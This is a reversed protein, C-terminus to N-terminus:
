VGVLQSLSEVFGNQLRQHEPIEAGLSPRRDFDTWQQFGEMAKERRLLPGGALGPHAFALALSHRRSIRGLRRGPSLGRIHRKINFRWCGVLHHPRNNFGAFFRSLTAVRVGIVIFDFGQLRHQVAATNGLPLIAINAPHGIGVVEFCCTYPLIGVFGQVLM